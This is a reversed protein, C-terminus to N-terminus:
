MIDDLELKEASVLSVTTLDVQGASDEQAVGLWGKQEGPAGVDPDSQVRHPWCLCRCSVCCSNEKAQPLTITGVMVMLLLTLFVSLALLLLVRQAPISELLAPWQSPTLGSFAVDDWSGSGSDSESGYESGQEAVRRAEHVQSGERIVTQVGDWSGSGSDPASGYDSGQDAVRQAVEHVRSGERVVTLEDAATIGDAILSHFAHAYRHSSGGGRADVECQDCENVRGRLVLSPADLDCQVGSFFSMRWTLAAVCPPLFSSDPGNTGCSLPWMATPYCQPEAVPIMQRWVGVDARRSCDDVTRFINLTRDTTDYFVACDSILASNQVTPSEHQARQPATSGLLLSSCAAALALRM